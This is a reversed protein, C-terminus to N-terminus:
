TKTTDFLKSKRTKMQSADEDLELETKYPPSTLIASKGRGRNGAEEPIDNEQPLAM